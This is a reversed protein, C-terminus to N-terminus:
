DLAHKSAVVMQWDGSFKLDSYKKIATLAGTPEEIKYLYSFDKAVTDFFKKPSAYQGPSFEIFMKLGPSNKILTKAGAYTQPEFGEVDIKIVNAKKVGNRKCIADITDVKVKVREQTMYEPGYTEAIEPIDLLSSSGWANRLFNFSATGPKDGVAVNEIVGRSIMGNVSMSKRIYPALVPNAEIFIVKGKSRSAAIVGFYGFNAGVDLVVDDKDIVKLFARTIAPEWEGSMLLHPVVSIDRTDVYMLQGTFIKTLAEFEGTSVTHGNKIQHIFYLAENLKDLVEVIMQSSVKSSRAKM